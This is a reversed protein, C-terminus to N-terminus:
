SQKKKPLFVAWEGTLAEGAKLTFKSEGEDDEFDQVGATGIEWAIGNLKGTMVSSLNFEKFAANKTDFEYDVQQRKVTAGPTVPLDVIYSSPDAFVYGEPAGIPKKNETVKLVRAEADQYEIEFKGRKTPGEFSIAQLENDGKLTYPSDLTGTARTKKEEEEERFMLLARSVGHQFGSAIDVLPRPLSVVLPAHAVALLLLSARM